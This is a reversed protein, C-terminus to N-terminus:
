LAMHVVLMRIAMNVNGGLDFEQVAGTGRLRFRFRLRLGEDWRRLTNCLCHTPFSDARPQSFLTEITEDVCPTVFSHLIHPLLTFSITEITEDVCPTVFFFPPFFHAIVRQVDWDDWRRLTNCLIHRQSRHFQKAEDWDDWRRLTNCLWKSNRRHVGCSLRLRRM